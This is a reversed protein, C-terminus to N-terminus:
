SLNQIWQGIWTSSQSKSIIEIFNSRKLRKKILNTWKKIKKSWIQNFIYQIQDFITLFQSSKKISKSMKLQIRGNEMSNSINEILNSNLISNITRIRITDDCRTCRAAQNRDFFNILHYNSDLKLRFKAWSRDLRMLKFLHPTSEIIGM